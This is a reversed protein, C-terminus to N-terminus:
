GAQGIVSCSHAAVRPQSEALAAALAALTGRQSAKNPEARRGLSRGIGQDVM